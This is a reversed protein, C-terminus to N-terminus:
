RAKPAAKAADDHKCCECGDKCCDMKAMAMDKGTAMEHHEMPPMPVPATTAPQASAIAAAAISIIM